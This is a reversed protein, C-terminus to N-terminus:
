LNHQLHHVNNQLHKPTTSFTSPPTSTHLEPSAGYTHLRPRTSTHLEPPASHAHLRPRTSTYPARSTRQLRTSTPHLPVSRQLLSAPSPIHLHLSISIQLELYAAPMPVRLHLPISIQLEPPITRAQPRPLHLPRSIRQPGPSTSTYLYPSGSSTLCAVPTPVHLRLPM